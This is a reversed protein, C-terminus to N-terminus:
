GGGLLRAIGEKKFYFAVSLPTEGYNNQINMDAGKGVLLKVIDKRGCYVAYMLPIRGNNNMNVHAVKRLLIEATHQNYYGDLYVRFRSSIYAIGIKGLLVRNAGNLWNHYEDSRLFWQSIGKHILAVRRAQQFSSHQPESVPERDLNSDSLRTDLVIRANM